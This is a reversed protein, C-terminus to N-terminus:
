PVGTVTGEPVACTELDYEIVWTDGPPVPGFQVTHSIIVLFGEAGYFRICDGCARRPGRVEFETRIKGNLFLMRTVEFRDGAHVAYGLGRM